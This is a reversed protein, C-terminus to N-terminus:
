NMSSDLSSDLGMKEFRFDCCDDGRALTKTRVFRMGLPELYGPYFVEDSYCSPECAEVIGCLRPIECFACYTVNIVFAEDSGEGIQYDHLGANKEALWFATWYERWAKFPDEMELFQDKPPNLMEHVQRAVKDMIEHQIALAKEKGAIKAMASFMAADAVRQRIFVESILGKERVPTLDVDALTKKERKALFMLRLSGLLGLHRRVIGSAEKRLLRNLPGSIEAMIESYPKGYHKLEEVRVIREEETSTVPSSGVTSRPHRAGYPSARAWPSTDGGTGDFL